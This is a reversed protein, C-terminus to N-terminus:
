RAGSASRRIRRVAYFLGGGLLLLLWTSPEPASVGPNFDLVIDNGQQAVSFSGGDLSNLFGSTNLSFDAPNFSTITNTSQIIDFQFAKTPDFDSAPASSDGQVSSINLTLKATPTATINLTM